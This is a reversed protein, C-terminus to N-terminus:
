KKSMFARTLQEYKERVAKDHPNKRYEKEAAQLVELTVSGNTPTLTEPSAPNISSAKTGFWHSRKLKLNAIAQDAGSVLIKGTSTTETTVESFDLLEIDSLSSDLIGAKLAATRLASQKAQEILNKSLGEFKSKYEEAEQEKTKAIGEWDQNEKMRAIKAADLQLQLAKKDEKNKHLDAKMQDYATKSVVEGQPDAPPDVPDVPPVIPPVVPPVVPDAM